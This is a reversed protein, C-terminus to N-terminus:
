DALVYEMVSRDVEFIRVGYLEDKFVLLDPANASTVAWVPEADFGAYLWHSVNNREIWRVYEM